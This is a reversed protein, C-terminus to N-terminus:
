ISKFLNLDGYCLENLYAITMLWHGIIDVKDKERRVFFHDADEVIAASVLLSKSSSLSLKSFSSSSDM